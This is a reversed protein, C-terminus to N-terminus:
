GALGLQARLAVRAETSLTKYLQVTARIQAEKLTPLFEKLISLRREAREKRTENKLIPALLVVVNRAFDTQVEIESVHDMFQVSMREIVFGLVSAKEDDTTKSYRVNLFQILADISAVMENASDFVEEASTIDGSYRKRKM